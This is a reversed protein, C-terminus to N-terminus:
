ACINRSEPNQIRSESEPNQIRAAFQPLEGCSAASPIDEDADEPSPFRSVKNRVRQHEDWNPFQLYSKGDVEYLGICGAAALDAIGKEIDKKIKDITAM